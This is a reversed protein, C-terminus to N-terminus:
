FPSLPTLTASCEARRRSSAPLRQPRTTDVSFLPKGDDADALVTYRTEAVLGLPADGLGIDHEAALADPAPRPMTVPSPAQGLGNSGSIRSPAPVARGSPRRAPMRRDMRGHRRRSGPAGHEPLHFARRARAKRKERAARPEAPRQLVDLRYRQMAPRDIQDPRQQMGLRRMSASVESPSPGAATAASSVSSPKPAIGASRAPLAQRGSSRMVVVARLVNSRSFM